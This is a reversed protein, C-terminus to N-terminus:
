HNKGEQDKFRHVVKNYRGQVEALDSPEHFNVSEGQLVGVTREEKSFDTFHSHTGGRFEDVQV